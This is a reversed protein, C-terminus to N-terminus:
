NLDEEKRNDILMQSNDGDFLIATELKKGSVAYAEELADLIKKIEELKM